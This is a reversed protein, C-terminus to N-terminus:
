IVKYIKIYVTINLNCYQLNPEIIEPSFLLPLNSFIGTLLTLLSTLLKFPEFIELIRFNSHDSFTQFNMNWYLNGKCVTVTRPKEFWVSWHINRWSQMEDHFPLQMWCLSVSEFVFTFNWDRDHFYSFWNNLSKKQSNLSNYFKKENVYFCRFIWM